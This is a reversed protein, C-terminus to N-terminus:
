IPRISVKNIDLCKLLYNKAKQNDKVYYYHLGLLMLAQLYRGNSKELAKEFYDPNKYYSGLICLMKVSEQKVIPLEKLYRMALDTNKALIMAEVAEEVLGSEKLLNASSMFNGTEKYCKAFKAIM